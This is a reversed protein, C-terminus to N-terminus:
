YKTSAGRAEIVAQIRQPMSRVLRSCYEPTLHVHWALRICECLHGFNQSQKRGVALKLTDWLNEIPNLDASNGPWALVNKGADEFLKRVKAVRHCPAGNQQFTNCHLNEMSKLACCDLVTHYLTGNIKEGPPLFFLEDVGEVGFCGWVM